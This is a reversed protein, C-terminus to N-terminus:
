FGYFKAGELGVRMGEMAEARVRRLAEVDEGMAEWWRDEEERWGGTMFKKITGAEVMAQMREYAHVGPGLGNLAMVVSPPVTVRGVKFCLQSISVCHVLAGDPEKSLPPLSLRKALEQLETSPADPTSDPTATKKKTPKSVFKAVGYIWKEGWTAMSIRVEYSALIPIEKLFMYHTGGLAIHGGVEERFLQPCYKLAWQFRVYDLTKAYSSNSLHLNFDCDDLSAWSRYVFGVEFPSRGGPSREHWWTQIRAKKAKKSRFILSLRHLRKLLVFRLIPLLTRFHWSLPFSKINILVLAVAATVLRPPIVDMLQKY